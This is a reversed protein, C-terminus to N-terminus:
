QRRDSFSSGRYDLYGQADPGSMRAAAEETGLAAAAAASASDASSVSQNTRGVASSGCGVTVLALAVSLVRSLQVEIVM